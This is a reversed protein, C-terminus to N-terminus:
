PRQDLLKWVRLAETVGWAQADCGRPPHPTDGDLIEPVQGLCGDNMLREMSGLYAKAAAVAHSSFDWARALAECFVPFTWTWATGNHYAAKRRTDEDGEYRGQYPETPNNLLHGDGGYIPLPASVPMPALSRLAGPVVLYGLAADVCRQARDGSVLGLSIALLCNSRLASDVIAASAPKGRGAILLDAFYGRDEVWYYRQISAEARDALASWAQRDGASGIRGLQRLLRVWLVQIEIPYGERPTGAPFNTDMWTFHSPSWILASDEDMRIGNPTGARYHGAISSLVEAITRGRRDVVTSYLL